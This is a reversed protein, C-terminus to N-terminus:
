LKYKIQKLQTVLKGATNSTGFNNAQPFVMMKKNRM